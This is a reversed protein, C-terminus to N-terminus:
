LSTVELWLDNAMKEFIPQITPDIFHRGEVWGGTGTGHGVDLMIAVNFWGDVVNDNHFEISYVSGDSTLEYRWANATVGSDVPTAARLAEVGMEGYRQLTSLRVADAARSLYKSLRSFDGRHKFTIKM